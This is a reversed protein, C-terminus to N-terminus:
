DWSIVRGKDKYVETLDRLVYVLKPFFSALEDKINNM